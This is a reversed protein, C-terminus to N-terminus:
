RKVPAGVSVWIAAFLSLRDCILNIDPKLNEFETQIHALAEQKKNVEALEAQKGELAAVKGLKAYLHNCPSLLYEFDCEGNRQSKFAAVISGAIIL